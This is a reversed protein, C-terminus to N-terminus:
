RLQSGCPCWWHWWRAIIMNTIAHRFQITCLLELISREPRVLRDLTLLLGCAPLRNREEGAARRAMRRCNKFNLISRSTVKTKNLICALNRGPLCLAHDALVAQKNLWSKISPCVHSVPLDYHAHSCKAHTPTNAMVEGVGRRPRSRVRAMRGLHASTSLGWIILMATCYISYTPSPRMCRKSKVQHFPAKDEGGGMSQTTCACYCKNVCYEIM